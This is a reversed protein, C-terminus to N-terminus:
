SRSVALRNPHALVLEEVGDCAQVTSFGAGELTRTVQMRVMMSDDIVLVKAM